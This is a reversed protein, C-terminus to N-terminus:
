PNKLNQQLSFRLSIKALLEVAKQKHDPSLHAYRQVMNLSKWGGLEQVTRLDVGQMVLRSAFTHRLTHPTVGTLKANRCATEFATRFSNYPRWPATVRKDRGKTMFVWPGPTSAKLRKLTELAVSNLPVTRTEGSKAFHDEVTVTKQAFDVNPWTLTMGESQMRLGTHIGIVIASRLPENAVELLKKEEAESLFRVRGRSEPAMQFRRVPNEGEFRKWKICLNFM